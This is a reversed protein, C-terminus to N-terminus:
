ELELLLKQGEAKVASDNATRNPMRVLKNLVEIAQAPRNKFQYAKALELYDPLFYIDLSRCKEMYAIATDVDPEPLRKYLSKFAVKKIWNVSLMEFHWKGLLYNAKAYDPNIALTKAVYMYVQTVDDSTKKNETETKTIKDLVLAEAYNADASNTDTALAKDAFSKASQYYAAKTLKDTQKEGLSCNLETCKVLAKIDAPHLNLAQKYIDLAETENFQKEINDAQKLLANEDQAFVNITIPIFLFLFIKKM